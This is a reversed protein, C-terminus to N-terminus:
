FKATFGVFAQRGVLDYSPLANATGAGGIYAAAALPPDKDLVNNVGARLSIGETVAYIASLDIYSINPLGSNYPDATGLRTSSGFLSPDPDNNDVGVKGIFRWQASLIVHLPTEWNVRMNHRWRPNITTNCNPGFLGACDFTHQGPAPTTTSKLLYSGSFTTSLAGWIGPLTYKYGMQVDIGRFIAEAINQSTQVIYGGGAVTAGTLAGNVHNRVVQSCFTPDGTDLCQNFLYAGPTVNIENKLDINFLDFSATFGHLMTPTLTLGVAYTNAVEPKLATNGGTIQGCQGAACQTINGYQAPTVGTNECQALSASPNAGACPDVGFFGQQGYQPPTYLDILNPARIAREFSGRFRVDDLPAYQVEFKYANTHGATSYKSYRYGGDVSIEKAWPKDQAIPARAEIFGESVNYGADIPV